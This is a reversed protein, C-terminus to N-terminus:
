TSNTCFNVNIAKKACAVFGISACSPETAASTGSLATPAKKAAMQATLQMTSSVCLLRQNQFVLLFVYFHGKKAHMYFIKSDMGPFPVNGFQQDLDEEIKFFVHDVNAILYDM